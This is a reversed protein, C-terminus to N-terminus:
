RTVEDVTLDLTVGPTAGVAIHEPQGLSVTRVTHVTTGSVTVGDDGDLTTTTLTLDLLVRGGAAPTAWAALSTGYDITVGRRLTPATGGANFGCPQREAATATPSALETGDLRVLRCRFQYQRGPRGPAAGAMTVASVISAATAIRRRSM